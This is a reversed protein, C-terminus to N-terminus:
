TIILLAEQTRVAQGEVVLVREVKGGKPARVENQMKMAEVVVLGQGVEVTQGASVLLRVVKGPMPAVVRQLGAAELATRGGARWARPDHVRVRFDSGACSVLLHDGEQSVRADFARGALLISYTGAGTEIARAAIEKGDLRAAFEREAHPQIEVSRTAGAVRVQLKM